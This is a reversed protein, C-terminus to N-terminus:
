CGTSCPTWTSSRQISHPQPNTDSQVGLSTYPAQDVKTSHALGGAIASNFTSGMAYQRGEVTSSSM